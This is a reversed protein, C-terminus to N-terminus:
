AAGKAKANRLDVARTFDIVNDSQKEVDEGDHYEDGEPLLRLEVQHFQRVVLSPSLRVTVLSGEVGIVVGCVSTNCIHEVFDGYDLLRDLNEDSM